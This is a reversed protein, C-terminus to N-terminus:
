KLQKPYPHHVMWTEVVGPCEEELYARSLIPILDAATGTHVQGDPMILNFKPKGSDAVDVLDDAANTVDLQNIYWQGDPHPFSHLRAVERLVRAALEKQEPTLNLHNM